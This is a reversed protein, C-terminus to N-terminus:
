DGADNAERLIEGIEAYVQSFNLGYTDLAFDYLHGDDYAKRWSVDGDKHRVIKQGEIFLAPYEYYCTSCGGTSATGFSIGTIRYNGDRSVGGPLFAEEDPDYWVGNMKRRAWEIVAEDPGM